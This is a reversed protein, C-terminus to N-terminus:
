TETDKVTENASLSSQIADFILSFISVASRMGACVVLLGVSLAGVALVVVGFRLGERLCGRRMMMAPQLDLEVSCTTSPRWSAESEGLMEDPGYRERRVTPMDLAISCLLM